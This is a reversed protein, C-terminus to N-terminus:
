TTSLKAHAAHAVEKPSKGAYQSDANFAGFLPDWETITMEGVLGEVFFPDTEIFDCASKKDAAAVILLASRIPTIKTDGSARLRQTEVGDVLWDLHASLHKKWGARNPHTYTVVFLAM